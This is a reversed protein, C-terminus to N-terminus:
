RRVGHSVTEAQSSLKKLCNGAAKSEYRAITSKSSMLLPSYTPKESPCPATESTRVYPAASASASAPDIEVQPAWQEKARELAAKARDRDAKLENL